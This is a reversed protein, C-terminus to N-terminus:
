GKVLKAPASVPRLSSEAWTNVGFYAFSDASWVMLLALMLHHVGFQDRLIVMALWALILVSAGEILCWPLSQAQTRGLTITKYVWYLVGATLILLSPTLTLYGFTYAGYVLLMALLATRFLGSSARCLRRWEWLGGMFILLALVNFISAPLLLIGSVALAAM